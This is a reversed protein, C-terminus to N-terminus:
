IANDSQKRSRRRRRVGAIERDGRWDVRVRRWVDGRWDKWRAKVVEEGRRV